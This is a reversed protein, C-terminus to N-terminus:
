GVAGPLIYPGPDLAALLEILPGNEGVGGRDAHERGLADAVEGTPHDLQAAAEALIDLDRASLRVTRVSSDANETPVDHRLQYDVDDWIRHLAALAVKNALPEPLADCPYEADALTMLLREAAPLLTGLVPGATRCDKSARNSMYMLRALPRGIRVM